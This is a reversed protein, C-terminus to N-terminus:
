RASPATASRPASTGSPSPSTLGPSSSATAPPRGAPRRSSCPPPPSEFLIRLKAVTTPSTVNSFGGKEKVIIQFVDPVMWGTYRLTYKEKLWFDVLKSYEPNDQTARLNGPSFMKGENIQTTEKGM